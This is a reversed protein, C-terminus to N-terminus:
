YMKYGKLDHKFIIKYDDCVTTSAELSDNRVLICFSSQKSEFYGAIVWEPTQIFRCIKTGIKLDDTDM